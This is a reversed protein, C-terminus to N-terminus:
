TVRRLTEALWGPPKLSPKAGLSISKVTDGHVRGFGTLYALLWILPVGLLWFLIQWVWLSPMGLVPMLETFIPDRFFTNGLVAGPGLALFSWMIIMSGLVRLGSKDLGTAANLADHLRDRALAEPKRNLTAASALVVLIINVALGWAASHITLPWRGWPLDVFLVEFVIIGLPETFVVVLVGLALGSLVAGLSIWRLFTLGIIAPLLQVALPLAVSAGIASIVPLFSAMFAMFFFALGLTIRASLRQGQLSLSPLLYIFIAERMILLVGGVVFFNVALVAGAFMALLLMVSALPEIVSLAQALAVPGELMRFALVPAGLVLMGGLLGGTLWVTSLGLTKGHRTTQALYLAAPSVVVGLLALVSSSVGVATFIGGAPVSKGIGFVNQLVGPLRDWMVGHVEPMAAAPFGLTTGTLEVILTVTPIFLLMLVSLMALMLITGRWGGIISAFASAVTLLWVGAMRPILGATAAELLSASFSLINAAYPLAFIVTIGLLVVRISTSEYYRGLAEGPTSLGAVRTVFWMRNWILLAAISIPIMGIGIHSAQLGFQGVLGLHRDVGMCALILGPLLFMTAWGPLNNGADLFSAPSAPLRATRSSIYVGYLFISALASLLLPIV